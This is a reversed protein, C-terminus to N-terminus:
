EISDLERPQIYRRAGHRVTLVFVTRERVTYLVRYQGYLLQRVSTRAHENEPAFAFTDPLRTLIRLKEELGRRWKVAAPPADTRIYEFAAEVDHEARQSLEVKYDM